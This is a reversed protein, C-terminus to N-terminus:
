DFLRPVIEEARGLIERQFASHRLEMPELNVLVAHAGVYEASRVFNAAPSV